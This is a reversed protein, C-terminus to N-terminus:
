GAATAREDKSGGSGSKEEEAAAGFEEAVTSEGWTECEDYHM